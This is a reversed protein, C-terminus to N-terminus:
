QEEYEKINRIIQTYTKLFDFLIFIIFLLFPIRFYNWYEFNDVISQFLSSLLLIVVSIIIYISNKNSNLDNITDRLQNNLHERVPSENEEKKLKKLHRLLKAEYFYKPCQMLYTISFIVVLASNEWRLKDDFIDFPAFSKIVIIIGLLIFMVSFYKLLQLYKLRNNISKKRRGLISNLSEVITIRDQM